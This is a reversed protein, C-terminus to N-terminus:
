NIKNYVKVGETADVKLNGQRDIQLLQPQKNTVWKIIYINPKSTKYIDAFNFNEDGGIVKYNGNSTKTVASTGWQGFNYKGELTGILNNKPLAKIKKKNKIAKIEDKTVKKVRPERKIETIEKSIVQKPKKIQKPAIVENVVKKEITNQTPVYSYNLEEIDVFARRTSEHYSKKFEKEKSIGVKSEFVVKNYCDLLQVKIKTSFMGSEEVLKGTLAMCNNNLLEQPKEDSSLFAVMGARNFLFKTLSNLQYQDQSRLFDFQNPVIIYKYNNVTKQAFLSSSILMICLAAIIKRM